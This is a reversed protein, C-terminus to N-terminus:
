SPKIADLRPCHDNAIDFDYVHGCNEVACRKFYELVKQIQSDPVIAGIGPVHFGSHGVGSEFQELGTDDTLQQQRGSDIASDLSQFNYINNCNLKARPPYPAFASITDLSKATKLTKCVETDWQQLKGGHDSNTVATPSDVTEAPPLPSCDLRALYEYLRCAIDVPLFYGDAALCKCFAECCVMMTDKLCKSWHGIAIGLFKIMDVNNGHFQGIKYIQDLLSYELYLDSWVEEIREKTGLTTGLQFALIRILTRDHISFSHSYNKPDVMPLQEDPTKFYEASWKLIDEPQTRIAAKVYDKLVEPLSDPVVVSTM